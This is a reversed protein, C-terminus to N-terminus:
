MLRTRDASQRWRRPPGPSIVATLGVRRSMVGVLAETVNKWPVAERRGISRTDLEISAVRDVCLGTQIYPASDSRGYGAVEAGRSVQLLVLYSSV